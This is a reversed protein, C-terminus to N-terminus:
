KARLNDGADDIILKYYWDPYRPHDPSAPLHENNGNNLFKGDKEIKVNGDIYKVLLFAYLEKWRNFTNAVANNSFKNLSEIGAEKNAKYEAAFKESQQEVMQIFTSELENQVPLIDKIMDSYRTYAYNSVQNFLWFASTPSYTMMDGNGTAIYHPIKTISCFVPMYVSTYSDDVGFWIIGGVPNPYKSRSQAVFSFGTQQTSIAREHIYDVGKYDWTMPRWRYPCAYPGAGVDKTMDMSTGEYHDRMLSFVDQVSLKNTPKIWLPMRNKLNDGRAYDEYKAMEEPNIKMFGAWVRAECFRAAGFNLPNYTDSFSFDADKGAYLGIAKAYSIVDYSYVVEVSPNFIKSINKTSISTKGNELPFTTIRAQNAHGSVYGDPIRMAVWVPSLTWAKTDVNGKKDLIPSGKGIMELIWVENPDSISFSEGTSYYGYESVLQHFIMIAERATKARQLTIYILSGYDIIGRKDQLTDLGTFTTEGIAVQHENINGVVSYTQIAQKIQGLKKGSDWEYIDMMTGAPYNAAPRYYLEGYLTHSDAAYTIFTSGDKSAGKTVLFNTCAHINSSTTFLMYCLASLFIKKM